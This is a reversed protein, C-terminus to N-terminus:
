DFHRMQIKSNQCKGDIKTRNLFYETQYCNKVALKMTEFSEGNKASKIVKQRSLKDWNPKEIKANKM